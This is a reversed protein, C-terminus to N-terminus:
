KKIDFFWFNDGARAIFEGYVATGGCVWESASVWVYYVYMRRVDFESRASSRLPGICVAALVMRVGGAGVGLVSELFNGSSGGREVARAFEMNWRGGFVVAVFDGGDFDGEVSEAVVVGVADAVGTTVVVDMKEFFGKVANEEVGDAM